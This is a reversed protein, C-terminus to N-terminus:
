IKKFARDVAKETYKVLNRLVQGQTKALAGRMYGHGKFRKGYTGYEVMVAHNGMGKFKGKSRPGVWIGVYKRMRAHTNGISKRLNGTSREKDKIKTSLISRAERILPRAARKAGSRIARKQLRKPLQKMRKKVQDLGRIDVGEIAM